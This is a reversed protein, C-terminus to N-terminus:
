LEKVPHPLSDGEPRPIDQWYGQPDSGRCIIAAASEPDRGRVDPPNYRMTLGCRRRNSPNPMSGHIIMDTHLSIQGAKLNVSVPKSDPKAYLEPDHIHQSLVGNEEDTLYEFPIVGQLHTGPFLNMAGNEEDVDDIALWVTVVKSPTLAWFQADQHWYVSKVEGPIKSFYHTMTCIIDPGVIDEVFDLVRPDNVLDYIGRCHLHWGNISYSDRGSKEALAMLKEFYERNAKVEEEDFLDLPFIYGKENFHNIQKNTLTKPEGEIPHFGLERVMDPIANTEPM